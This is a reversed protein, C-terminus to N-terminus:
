NSTTLTWRPATLARSHMIPHLLRIYQDGLTQGLYHLTPRKLCRPLLAPLCNSSYESVWSMQSFWLCFLFALVPRSLHGLPDITWQLKIERYIEVVRFLFTSDHQQSHSLIWSIQHSQCQHCYGIWMKIHLDSFTILVRNCSFAYSIAASTCPISLYVFVTDFLSTM